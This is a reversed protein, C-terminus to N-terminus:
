EHINNETATRNWRNDGNTRVIKLKKMITRQLQGNSEIIERHFGAIMYEVRNHDCWIVDELVRLVMNRASQKMKLQHIINAVTGDAGGWEYM